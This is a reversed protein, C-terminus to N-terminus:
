LCRSFSAIQVNVVPATQRASGHAPKTRPGVSLRGGPDPVLTPVAPVEVSTPPHPLARGCVPSPGCTSVARYLRGDIRVSVQLAINVAAANVFAWIGVLRHTSVCFAVEGCGSVSLLAFLASARLNM